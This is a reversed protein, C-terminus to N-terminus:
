KDKKSKREFKQESRDDKLVPPESDAKAAEEAEKEARLRDAEADEAAYRAALEKAYDSYDDDDEQYLSKPKSKKKQMANVQREAEKIEEETPKPAPFMKVLVYQQLVGFIGQFIWYVAIAAPVVFCFFVSLMPMAFDMVCGSQGGQQAAMAPNYNLKKMIRASFFQVVFTLIPILFLLWAASFGEKLVDFSPTGSLDLGFLSFDPLAKETLEPVAGAFSSFNQRMTNALHLSEYGQLSEIVGDTVKTFKEIAMHGNKVAVNALEVIKDNSLHLMYRLPNIVVNYLAILIPFQLLLPLCGSLPSFNNETYLKQIEENMKMQTPKDTHGAYKKRIAMEMPRLKAQKVQNKQQKIGLPFLVVKVAIAFFFLALTYNNTINYFFEIVYGFPVAIIDLM